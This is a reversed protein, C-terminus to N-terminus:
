FGGQLMERLAVSQSNAPVIEKAARLYVWEGETLEGAMGLGSGSIIYTSSNVKRIKWDGSHEMVNQIISTSLKAQEIEQQRWRELASKEMELENRIEQWSGQARTELDMVRIIAAFDQRPTGIEYVSLELATVQYRDNKFEDLSGQTVRSSWSGSKFEDLLKVKQNEVWRLSPAVVQELKMLKEETSYIRNDIIQLDLNVKDIALGNMEVLCNAFERTISKDPICNTLVFLPVLLSLLSCLALRRM